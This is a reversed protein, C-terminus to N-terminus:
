QPLPLHLMAHQNAITRDTWDDTAYYDDPYLDIPALTNDIQLRSPFFFHTEGPKTQLRAVMGPDDAVKSFGDKVAQITQRIEEAAENREDATASQHDRAQEQGARADQTQM